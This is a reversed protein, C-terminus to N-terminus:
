FRYLGSLGVIHAHQQYRGNATLGSDIGVSNNKRRGHYSEYLYSLALRLGGFTKQIGLSFDDRDSAPVSPEFTDDPVPNGEYLYGASVALTPSINYKIGFNFGYVNKWEKELVIMNSRLVPKTLRLNLADYSSWGEWKGGIELILNDVPSYSLGWFAQAPLDLDVKGRTDPLLARLIPPTGNPLGFSVDGALHLKIRSRYSIGFSIDKTLKCLLGINFGYGRGDGDFEQDGDALGIVSLNIDQKLNADGFLIDIGGALTLKDTVRWAMNPNINFTVLEAETTVYRGEWGDPWETALGFTNNVGLGLTLADNLSHSIFLTSPFFTNSKASVSEGTLDSRFDISPRILITGIELQTGDLESLLAPNYFNSAPGETHALVSDCVALEAAGSAWLAFGSADVNRPISLSFVFFSVATLGTLGTAFFKFCKM